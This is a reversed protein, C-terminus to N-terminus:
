WGGEGGSVGNTLFRLLFDLLFSKGKRFAGAVSVVVVKKDRVEPSLLVEQLAEEDLEFTHDPRASVIQIARPGDTLPPEMSPFSPPLSSSVSSGLSAPPFAPVPPSHLRVHNIAETCGEWRPYRKGIAVTSYCARVGLM